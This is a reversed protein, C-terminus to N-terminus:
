PEPAEFVVLVGRSSGLSLSFLAFNQAEWEVPGWGERSWKELNAGGVERRPRVKLARRFTRM